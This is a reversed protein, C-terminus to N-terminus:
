KNTKSRKTNEQNMKRIQKDKFEKYKRSEDKEKTLEAENVIQSLKVQKRDAKIQKLEEEIELHVQM